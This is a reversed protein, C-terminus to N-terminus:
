EYDGQEILRIHSGIDLKAQNYLEEQKGKKEVAFVECDRLFKREVSLPFYGEHIRKKLAVYAPWDPKWEPKPPHVIERLERPTPIEDSVNLHIFLAKTLQAAPIDALVTLFMDRLAKLEAPSKGYQKLAICAQSM